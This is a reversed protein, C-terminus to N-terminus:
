TITVSLLLLFFLLQRNGNKFRTINARQRTQFAAPLKKLTSWVLSRQLLRAQLNIFARELKEREAQSLFFPKVKAINRLHYFSM